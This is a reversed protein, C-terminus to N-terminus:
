VETEVIPNMRKGDSSLKREDTSEPKVSGM